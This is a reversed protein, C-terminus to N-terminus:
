QPAPHSTSWRRRVTALVDPEDSIVGNAGLAVVKDLTGVDNVPWTMVVEVQRRLDSVLGRTSSHGTSRSVTCAPAPNLGTPARM